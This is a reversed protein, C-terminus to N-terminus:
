VEGESINDEVVGWSEVESIIDWTGDLSMAPESSTEDAFWDRSARTWWDVTGPTGSPWEPNYSAFADLSAISSRRRIGRWELCWMDSNGRFEASPDIELTLADSREASRDDGGEVKKEGKGKGKGKGKKGLVRITFAPEDRLVDGFGFGADYTGKEEAQKVVKWLKSDGGETEEKELTKEWPEAGLGHARALGGNRVEAEAFEADVQYDPWEEKRGVGLKRGGVKEGERRRQAAGRRCTECLLREPTPKARKDDFVLRRPLKEAKELVGMSCRLVRFCTNSIPRGWPGNGPRAQSAGNWSRRGQEEDPLYLGRYERSHPKPGPQAVIIRNPKKNLDRSATTNKGPFVFDRACACREPLRGYNFDVILPFTEPPPRQKEGMNHTNIHNEKDRFKAEKAAERAIRRRQEKFIPM